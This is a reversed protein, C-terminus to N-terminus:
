KKDSISYRKTGSQAESFDIRRILVGTENYIKQIALLLESGHYCGANDCRLYVKELKSNEARLRKLVDVLISVVTKGTQGCYNFVHCMTRHEFSKASSTTTSAEKVRIIHTLHWPLGKKAFWESQPERYKLQLWKMAWDIHLFVQLIFFFILNYPCIIDMKHLYTKNSSIIRGKLLM